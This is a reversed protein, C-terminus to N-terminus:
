LFGNTHGLRHYFFEFFDTLFWIIFFSFILYLWGYNQQYIGCYGNGLYLCLAPCFTAVSIGKIMLLIEERIYEPSPYKSNSKNKWKEFTIRVYLYYFIISSFLLLFPLTILTLVFWTTILNNKWSSIACLM